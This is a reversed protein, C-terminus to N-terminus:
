RTLDINALKSGLWALGIGPLFWLFFLPGDGEYEGVYIAVVYGAVLIAFILGLGFLAKGLAEKMSLGGVNLWLIPAIVFLSTPASLVLFIFSVLITVFIRNRM